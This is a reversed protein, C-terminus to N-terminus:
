SWLQIELVLLLCAVVILVPMVILGYKLFEKMTITVGKDSCIKSWMLGALAGIFTFNTGFNSGLILAFMSGRKVLEPAVFSANELIRTFLITMPQNNILNAALSSLFGMILTAPLLETALKSLGEAFLSIWGARSLDEVIIFYGIAFPAVKWPMLKMAPLGNNKTRRSSLFNVYVDRALMILAIGFPIEWIEVPLWESISLLVLGTLFCVVGFIAGAKDKIAAAPALEPVKIRDPIRKRLVFRLLFFCLTTAVLTPVAMWKSYELFTLGYAQAVIINTPNGVYLAMSCIHAAFFQAILYPIPDTDTSRCCYCIIPTLTLVVVDNSTFLALLGSLFFLYVFLRKGSNAAARATLLALYDFFGTLDISCCIYAQSMFLILISYPKITATGTIGNVVSERGFPFILMLVAGIVPASGYDITVVRNLFPIRLTPHKLTLFIVGIFVAITAILEITQPLM